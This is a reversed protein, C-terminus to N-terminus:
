PGGIRGGTVIGLVISETFGYLRCFNGYLGGVDEVTMGPIPYLM